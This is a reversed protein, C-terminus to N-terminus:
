SVSRAYAEVAARQADLDSILAIEWPLGGLSMRVRERIYDFGVAVTTLMDDFTPWYTLEGKIELDVWRWSTSNLGAVRLLRRRPSFRVLTGLGIAYFAESRRWAVRHAVSDDPQRPIAVTLHVLAGKFVHDIEDASLAFYELRGVIFSDRLHAFM